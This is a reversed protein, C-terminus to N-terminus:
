THYVGATQLVDLTDYQALAAKLLEDTWPSHMPNDVDCFFVGVQVRGEFHPLGSKNIRPQRAAGEVVYAVLHADTSYTRTLAETLELVQYAHPISRGSGDFGKTFKNPAVAVLTM